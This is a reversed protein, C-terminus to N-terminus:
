DFYVMVESGAGSVEVSDAPHELPIYAMVATATLIIGIWGKDTVTKQDLASGPNSRNIPTWKFNVITADKHIGIATIKAKNPPTITGAGVLLDCGKEGVSRSLFSM